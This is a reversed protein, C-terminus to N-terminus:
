KLDENEENDNENPPLDSRSNGSTNDLTTRKTKRIQTAFNNQFHITQDDDDEYSGVLITM